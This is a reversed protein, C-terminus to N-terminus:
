LKIDACFASTRYISIGNWWQLHCQLESNKIYNGEEPFLKETAQSTLSLDSDDIM